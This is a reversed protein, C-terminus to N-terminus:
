CFCLKALLKALKPLVRNQWQGLVEEIIYNGYLTDSGNSVLACLKGANHLAMQPNIGHIAKKTKRGKQEPCFLTRIEPRQKRYRPPSAAM